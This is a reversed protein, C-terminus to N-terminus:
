AGPKLATYAAETGAGAVGVYLFLGAGDCMEESFPVKWAGSETTFEPVDAKLGSEIGIGVYKADIGVGQQPLFAFFEGKSLTNVLVANTPNLGKLWIAVENKFLIGLDKQEGTIKFESFPKKATVTVLHMTKGAVMAIETILGTATDYTTNAWDIESRNGWLIEQEFGKFVKDTCAGANTTLLECDM